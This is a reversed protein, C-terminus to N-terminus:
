FNQQRESNVQTMPKVLAIVSELSLPYDTHFIDSLTYLVGHMM